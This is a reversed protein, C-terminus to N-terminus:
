SSTGLHPNRERGSIKDLTMDPLEDALESPSSNASSNAVAPITPEYGYFALLDELPMTGEKELDEIESSFNKGEDMMEEEELTREDDYDHVLMEATPDFDHDESSLSGVPSSSGFSAEAM